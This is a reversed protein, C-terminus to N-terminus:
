LRGGVLVALICLWETTQVFYGALDGTVGGFQRYAMRKYYLVSFVAAAIPLLAAAKMAAFLVGACAALYLATSVAIARNQATRAFGDLMGGPRASKMWTMTWASLTRSMVFCAALAWADRGHLESLLGAMTLLYASCGIVAFAGVHSDKLIELRKEPPQWSALADRTDMFGDMHIGGTVLLPIAAGVAGRLLAGFHLADCLALWAGLVLAVTAGVLPFFCMAYQRNEWDARPVPIRSYTAFAILLGNLM